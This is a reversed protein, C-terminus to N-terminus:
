RLQSTRLVQILMIVYIGKLKNLRKLTRVYIGANLLVKPSQSPSSDLISSVTLSAALRWVISWSVPWM